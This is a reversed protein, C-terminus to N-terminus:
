PPLIISRFTYVLGCSCCILNSFILLITPLNDEGFKRTTRISWYPFMQAPCLPPPISKIDLSAEGNWM